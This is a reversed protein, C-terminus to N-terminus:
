PVFLFVKSYGECEKGSVHSRIIISTIEFSAIHFFQYCVIRRRFFQGVYQSLSETQKKKCKLRKRM